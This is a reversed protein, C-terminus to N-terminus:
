PAREQSGAQGDAGAPPPPGGRRLDEVAAFLVIAIMVAFAVPIVAHMVNMPLNAVQSRHGLQAISSFSQYIILGGVAAFVLAGILDLVSQARAGLAKSLLDMRLHDRQVTVLIAGLYVMWVLTYGLVEEAWIIPAFLVYRGFVNACVLLASLFLAAALLHRIGALLLTAM